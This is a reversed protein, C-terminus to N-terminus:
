LQCDFKISKGFGFYSGRAPTRRGISDICYFGPSVIIMSVVLLFYLV